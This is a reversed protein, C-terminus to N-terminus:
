LDTSTIWSICSSAPSALVHLVGLFFFLGVVPEEHADQKQRSPPPSAARNMIDVLGAGCSAGFSSTGSLLTAVATSPSQGILPGCNRLGAPVVPSFTAAPSRKPRHLKEDERVGTRSIPEAFRLKAM